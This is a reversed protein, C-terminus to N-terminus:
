KKVLPYKQAKKRLIEISEKQDFIIANLRKIENNKENIESKSNKYHDINIIKKCSKNDLLEKLEKNEKNLQENKNALAKCEKKINIRDNKISNNWQDAKKLKETFDNWKQILELNQRRLININWNLQYNLDKHRKIEKDLKSFKLHVDGTWLKSLDYKLDEVVKILENKQVWMEKLENRLRENDNSM